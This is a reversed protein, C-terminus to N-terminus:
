RVQWPQYNIQAPPAYQIEDYLDKAAFKYAELAWQLRMLGRSNKAFQELKLAEIQTQYLLHKLPKVDYLPPYIPTPSVPQKVEVHTACGTNLALAIVLLTKRM